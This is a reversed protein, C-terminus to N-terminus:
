AKWAGSVGVGGVGGLKGPHGRGGGGGGGGRRRRQGAEVCVHAGAGVKALEKAKAVAIEAEEKYESKEIIGKTGAKEKKTWKSQKTKSEVEMDEVTDKLESEKKEVEIPEVPVREAM